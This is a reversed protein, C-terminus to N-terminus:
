TDAQAMGSDGDKRLYGHELYNGEIAKVLNTMAIFFPTTVGNQRAYEVIKGGLFDIETPAKNEIDFCMSDRHVGAKMLYNVAQELYDKGIDYGVAGAVALAEKFCADAIERTPAFELAEKITKNTVACISAMTCKMVMKKWVHFKIDDVFDTDLGCDSLLTAIQLGLDRNEETLCGIYNPRNFFAMEAEGPSKLSVGFNLSMRFVAETGFKSAILDETGLGNQTSIIKVGPRYVDALEKLIQDLHFTKTALFILNPNLHNLEKIQSVFNKVMSQYSIAGSVRLGKSLLADGAGPNRGVLVTEPYKSLIAAALVTGTAGVGVIAIRHQGM